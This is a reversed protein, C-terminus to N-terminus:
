RISPAPLAPLSEIPVGSVLLSRVSEPHQAALNLGIIGGLSLGVVHASGGGRRESVVAAVRDATDAFSVWTENASRGIGPFDPLLCRYEPLREVQGLWMWGAVMSGHLFVVPTGDVPGYGDIEM